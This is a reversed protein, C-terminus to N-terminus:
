PHDNVEGPVRNIRETTEASIRESIADLRDGRKSFGECLVETCLSMVQEIVTEDDWVTAIGTSVATAIGHTLLSRIHRVWGIHGTSMDEFAPHKELQGSTAVWFRYRRERIEEPPGYHMCGFLRGHDRAFIIYGVSQDVWIDGTYSRSAYALLLEWARDLIAQRFEIMNAFHSFIPMTSAGLRGAVSKPTLGEWGCAKLQLLGAEIVMEKTFKSKKPM